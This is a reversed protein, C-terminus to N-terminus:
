KPDETEGIRGEVLGVDTELAKIREAMRASGDDRARLESLRQRLAAVQARKHDLGGTM